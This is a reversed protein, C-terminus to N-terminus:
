ILDFKPLQYKLIREVTRESVKYKVVAALKLDSISANPHAKKQRIYDLCICYSKIKVPDGLQYLLKVGTFGVSANLGLEDAMHEVVTKIQQEPTM